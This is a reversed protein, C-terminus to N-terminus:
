YSDLLKQRAEAKDLYDKAQKYNEDIHIIMKLLKIAEKFNDKKYFKLAKDYVAPLGKKIAIERKKLEQIYINEQTRSEISQIRDYATDLRQKKILSDIEDLWKNFSNTFDDDRRLITITDKLELAQSTKQSSIAANIKTEANKYEKNELLVAAWKYFLKYSTKKIDNEYKTDAKGIVKRCIILLNEANQFDDESFYNKVTKLLKSLISDMDSEIARKESLVKSNGPDLELAKSCHGVAKLYIGIRSDPDDDKKINDLEKNAKDLYSDILTNLIERTEKKLRKIDENKSDLENVKNIVYILQFNEKETRNKKELLKDALTVLEKIKNEPFQDARELFEKALKNEPDFRHAVEFYERIEPLRRYNEKELIESLYLDAGKQAIIQAKERDPLNDIFFYNDKPISACGTLFLICVFSLYLTVTKM